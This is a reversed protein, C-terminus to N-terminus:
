PIFTITGPDGNVTDGAGGNINIFTPAVALTTTSADVIVTGIKAGVQLSVKGGNGGPLGTGTALGGQVSIFQVEGTSTVIVEGGKGPITWPHTTAKQAGVLIASGGVKGAIDLFGATSPTCAGDGGTLNVNGTVIGTQLIYVTAANGHTCYSGYGMGSINNVTGYINAKGAFSQLYPGSYIYLHTASGFVNIIGGLNGLPSGTGTGALASISPGSVNGTPYITITGGAGVKSDVTDGGNAEVIGTVTGYIRIDGGKGALRQTAVVGNNAGGKSIVSGTVISGPDIYVIGGASSDVATVCSVAVKCLDEQGASADISTAKSNGLLQIIGGLSSGHGKGGIANVAGFNGKLTIAGGKGGIGPYSSLGIPDPFHNGGKGGNANVNGFTMSFDTEFTITRGDTGNKGNWDGVTATGDAGNTGDAVINGFITNLPTAGTAGVWTVYSGFHTTLLINGYTGPSVEIVLPKFSSPAFAIAANVAGQATQFPKTPDSIIGTIDSGAPSLYLTSKLVNISVTVPVSNLFIDSVMFTFSDSGFYNINPSYLINAGTGYLTGNTPQNVIYFILQDGNPDSGTLTIPLPKNSYTTLSAPNATPAENYKKIDIKVTKAASYNGQPDKVRFTFSDLGDYDVLPTYKFSCNPNVLYSSHNTPPTVPECTVVDGDPDYGSLDPKSLTGESVYESLLFAKNEIMSINLDYAVPFDQAALVTFSAHALPSTLNNATVSYDFSVPGFYNSSPMLKVKCIGGSCICDETISLYHRNSIHCETIQDNEPDSYNLYIWDTETDENINQPTIDYAFPTNDYASPDNVSNVTLIGVKKPQCGLFIFLMFLTAVLNASM